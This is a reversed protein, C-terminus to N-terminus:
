RDYPGVDSIKFDAVNISWTQKAILATIGCERKFSGLLDPVNNRVM